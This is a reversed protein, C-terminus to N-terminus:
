GDTTWSRAAIERHDRQNLGIRAWGPRDAFGVYGIAVLVTPDTALCEALAALMDEFSRATDVLADTAGGQLHRLMDDQEAGSLARFPRAYAAASESEILDLLGRQADIDPPLTAYRWGKGQPSSIRFEFAKALDPRPLGATEPLLRLAVATLTERQQDSFIGPDPWPSTEGLREELARRSTV